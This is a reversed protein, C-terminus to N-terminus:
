VTLTQDGSAAESDAAAADDTTAAEETSAADQTDTTAAAGDSGSGCGVLSLVMTSALLAALIKRKM